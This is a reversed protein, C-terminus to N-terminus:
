RLSIIVKNDLVCNDYFQHFSNHSQINHARPKYIHFVLIYLRIMQYIYFSHTMTQFILKRQFTLSRIGKVIVLDSRLSYASKSPTHGLEYKKYEEM